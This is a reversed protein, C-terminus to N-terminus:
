DAEIGNQEKDRNNLAIMAQQYDEYLRGDAEWYLIPKM